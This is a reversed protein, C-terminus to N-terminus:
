YVLSNYPKHERKFIQQKSVMTFTKTSNKSVAIYHVPLMPPTIIRIHAYRSYSVISSDAFLWSSTLAQECCLFLQVTRNVHQLCVLLTRSGSEKDFLENSSCRRSVYVHRCANIRYMSTKTARMRQTRAVATRVPTARTWSLHWLCYKITRTICRKNNNVFKVTKTNGSAKDVVNKIRCLRTLWLQMVTNINCATNHQVQISFQLYTLGVTRQQTETSNAQLQCHINNTEIRRCYWHYHV